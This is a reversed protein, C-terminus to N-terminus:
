AAHRWLDGINMVELQNLTFQRVKYKAEWKSVVGSIEAYRENQGFRMEDSITAFYMDGHLGLETDQAHNFGFEARQVSRMYNAFNSGNICMGLWLSDVKKDILSSSFQLSRASKNKFMEFRREKPPTLNIKYRLVDNVKKRFKQAVVDLEPSFYSKLMIANAVSDIFHIMDYVYSSILSVDTTSKYRYTLNNERSNRYEQVSFRSLLDQLHCTSSELIKVGQALALEDVRAGDTVIYRNARRTVFVSIVDGAVTSYPTEMELTEDLMRCHWLESFDSKLEQFLDKTLLRNSM